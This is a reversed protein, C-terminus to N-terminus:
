QRVLDSVVTYSPENMIKGELRMKGPAFIALFKVMLSTQVRRAKVVVVIVVVIM